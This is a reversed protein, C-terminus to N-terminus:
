EKMYNPIHKYIIAYLPAKKLDFRFIKTGDDFQSNMGTTRVRSSTQTM